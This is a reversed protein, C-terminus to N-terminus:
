STRRSMTLGTQFSAPARHGPTATKGSLVALEAMVRAVVQRTLDRRAGGAPLRSALSREARFGLPEGPCLVIRGLWPIRGLRDAAPFRIGVPVVPVQSRLVLEGLGSRGRLLARSSRNRTGEPFIGLSGGAELRELCVEVVPQRRARRFSEGLRWRAPKGYVPIPESQRLVWGILPNHLYMWDVLFHVKRGGRLWMLAAPVALAEYANNHNFAFIAPEPANALLEPREVAIFRGAVLMTGRLLVRCTASLEPLEAALVERASGVIPAPTYM